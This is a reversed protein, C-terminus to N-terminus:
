DAVEHNFGINVGKSLKTEKEIFHPSVTKNIIIVLICIFYTAQMTGSTTITIATIIIGVIDISLNTYAHISLSKIVSSM